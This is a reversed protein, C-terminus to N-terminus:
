ALAKLKDMVSQAGVPAPAIAVISMAAVAGFLAGRVVRLAPLQRFNRLM